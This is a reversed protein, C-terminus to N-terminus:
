GKPTTRQALVYSTANGYYSDDFIWKTSGCEAWWSADPPLPWRASMEQGLWRKLLKRIVKPDFESTLVIHSHDERCAFAHLKWHGRVCVAPIVSEAYLRQELTMRVPPFRLLASEAEFRDIDRGLVATGFDNHERDVTPRDGGHLRTGYHGWTLHFALPRM